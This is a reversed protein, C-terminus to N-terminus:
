RSGGVVAALGELARRFRGRGVMRGEWAAEEVSGDVPAVVLQAEPLMRSLEEEVEARQFGSRPARNLVVTLPTEPALIRAEAAWEVLRTVAVPSPLTVAVLHDARAVMARSLGYRGWGEGAGAPDLQGGVNVVVWSGDAALREVLEVVDYPRVEGWDRGSALGPLVRLRGVPHLAQELDTHRFHLLDLATRLNPHLPLSLRQAVSPALDDADVLVAAPSSALISALTVAVETAGCGGVPAGVAVVRGSAAPPRVTTKEPLPPPPQLSLVRAVVRLFEDPHADAEVVDHVGAELLRDKGDPFEGPDYIGVVRRGARTVREVLYPTLFSCIDDILLVDYDESLADEPTLLHFRVRAGGHDALFRHLTDAWGRASAALALQPDVRM